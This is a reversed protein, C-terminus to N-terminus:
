TGTYARQKLINYDLVMSKIDELSIPDFEITKGQSVYDIFCKVKKRLNSASHAYISLQLKYLPLNRDTEDTKYDHIEVHDDFEAILDIIG